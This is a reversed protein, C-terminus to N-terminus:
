KKPQIKSVEESTILMETKNGWTNSIYNMVDAVEEDTLGLPSMVGNYVTGNVTIEGKQGYKIARISAERKNKLYDSGALPPFAKPVGKGNTMHCSMCFDQYVLAGSEISKSTESTSKKDQSNCATLSLLFIFLLKILKM